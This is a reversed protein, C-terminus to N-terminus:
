GEVITLDALAPHPDESWSIEVGDVLGDEHWLLVTALDERGRIVAGFALPREVDEPLLRVGGRVEIEFCEPCGPDAVSLSVAFQKELVAALDGAHEVIQQLVACQQASPPRYQMRDRVM